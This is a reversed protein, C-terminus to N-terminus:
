SLFSASGGKGFQKGMLAKTRKTHIDKELAKYDEIEVEKKKRRVCLYSCEFNFM